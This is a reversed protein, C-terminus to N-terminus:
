NTNEVRGGPARLCIHDGSWPKEFTRRREVVFGESSALRVVDDVKDFSFVEWAGPLVGERVGHVVELILVGRPRLVRRIERFLDVPRLAHDISNTFVLDVVGDAFQLRHFDGYLVLDNADGPNLDVGVAFCGLDRFARVEGGLRAGLCLVTMGHRVLEDERVRQFVTTYVERDRDTCDTMRMKSQQHRVYDAYSNYRRLKMGQALGPQLSWRGGEGPIRDVSRRLWRSLKRVPLM